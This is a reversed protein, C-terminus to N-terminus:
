GGLTANYRALGRALDDLSEADWSALAELFVQRRSRVMRRVRRQGDETVALLSARGDEPDDTREVLALDVLLQVQRSTASKDLDLLCGLEGQRAPSGLHELQALMAYGTPHLDPHIEKARSVWTRKMRRALVGIETELALLTDARSHSMAEGDTM